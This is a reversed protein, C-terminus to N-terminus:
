PAEPLDAIENLIDTVWGPETRVFAARPGDEDLDDSGYYAVKDELLLERLARELEDITVDRLTSALGLLNLGIEPDSTGDLAELVREKLEDPEKV